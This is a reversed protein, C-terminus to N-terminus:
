PSDGAHINLAVTMFSPMCGAESRLAEPDDLTWLWDADVAKVTFYHQGQPGQGAPQVAFPVPDKEDGSTVKGDDGVYVRQGLGKNYLTFAGDKAPKVEWEAFPGPWERTYSVFAPSNERYDRLLTNTAVNLIRYTGPEFAALRTHAGAPPVNINCSIAMPVQLGTAPAAGVLTLAALGFTLLNTFM